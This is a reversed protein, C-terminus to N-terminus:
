VVMGTWGLCTASEFKGTRTFNYRSCNSWIQRYDKGQGDRDSRLYGDKDTANIDAGGDLLSQVYATDGTYAAQILDLTTDGAFAPLSTFLSLLVIIVPIRQM